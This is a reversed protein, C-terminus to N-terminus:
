VTDRTEGQRSRGVRGARLDGSAQPGPRTSGSLAPQAGIQGFQGAGSIGAIPRQCVQWDPGRGDIAM